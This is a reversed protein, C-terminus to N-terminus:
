SFHDNSRSPELPLTDAAHQRPDLDDDTHGHHRDDADDRTERDDGAYQHRM